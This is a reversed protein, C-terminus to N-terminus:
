SARSKRLIRNVLTAILQANTPKCKYISISNGFFKYLINIDCKDLVYEIAHRIAREVRTPTTDFDQAVVRYLVSTVKNLLSPDDLCLQIADAAYNYGLLHVPVGLEDLTDFVEDSVKNIVEKLM